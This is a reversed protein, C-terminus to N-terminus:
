DTDVWPCRRILTGMSSSCSVFTHNEGVDINGFIRFWPSLRLPRLAIGLRNYKSRGAM